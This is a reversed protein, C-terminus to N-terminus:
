IRSLVATVIVLFYSFYINIQVGSLAAFFFFSFFSRHCIDSVYVVYISYLHSNEHRPMFLVPASPGGDFCLYAGRPLM